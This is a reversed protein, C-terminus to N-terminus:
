FPFKNLPRNIQEVLLMDEGLIWNYISQATSKWEIPQPLVNFDEYSDGQLPM